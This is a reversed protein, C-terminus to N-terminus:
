TLYKLTSSRGTGRRWGWSWPRWCSSGWSYEGWVWSSWQTLDPLHESCLYEDGRLLIKVRVKKYKGRAYMSADQLYNDYSENDNGDLERVFTLVGQKRLGYELNKGTFFYVDTRTCVLTWNDFNMHSTSDGHQNIWPVLVQKPTKLQLFVFCILLYFSQAKFCWWSASLIAHLSWCSKQSCIDKM